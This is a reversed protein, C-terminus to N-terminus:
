GSSEGGDIEKWGLGRASRGEKGRRQRGQKSIESEGVWEGRGSCLAFHFLARAAFRRCIQVCWLALYAPLRKGRGLLDTVLVHHPRPTGGWGLHHRVLGLLVAGEDPEHLSEFNPGRCTRRAPERPSTGNKGQFESYRSGSM